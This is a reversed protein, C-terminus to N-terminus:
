KNVDATSRLEETAKNRVLALDLSPINCKAVKEYLKHASYKDGKKDYAVATYYWNLPSTEDAKALDGIANNYDGNQIALFGTLANLQMVEYPNKRSEVTQRFKDLEAKAKDVENLAALNYINSMMSNIRFNAKDAQPFNSKEIEDNAKSFYNSAEAAKGSQTLIFACTINSNIVAPVRNEKEALSGYEEFATVANDINGEYVYSTAKSYLATLKGNINPSKDFHEQYYKRASEYDGKFLYNNGIGSLSATFNVPDKDVAIKYQAISEDYKGEKLLLEGYSDYPNGKDPVLSIYTQFAKEAQPFNNLASQDYGIMNYASAFNKDIEVAKNFHELSATFDNISYYYEGALVQVLKDSPFSSLLWDLAEKQKAGDGDTQAKAFLILEKEGESIKGTLAVAKELNSRMLDLGGGSQSRYLYALAFDPDAAIAKDFLPAAAVFEMNGMKERGDLFFSKAEKSSTTVPVEKVQGMINVPIILSASLLVFLGKILRKM